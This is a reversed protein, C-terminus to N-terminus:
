GKARGERVSRGEQRSRRFLLRTQGQKIEFSDGEMKPFKGNDGEEGDERGGKAM